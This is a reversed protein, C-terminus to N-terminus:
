QGYHTKCVNDYCERPRRYGLALWRKPLWATGARCVPPTCCKLGASPDHWESVFDNMQMTIRHLKGSNPSTSPLNGSQAKHLVGNAIDMCSELVSTIGEVAERDNVCLDGDVVEQQVYHLADLLKLFNKIIQPFAHPRVNPTRRSFANLITGVSNCAQGSLALMDETPARRSEPEWDMFILWSKLCQACRALNPM